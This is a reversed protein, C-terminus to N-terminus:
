GEQIIIKFTLVKPVKIGELIPPVIDEKPPCWLATNSNDSEVEGKFARIFYTHCEGDDPVSLTIESAESPINDLTLINEEGTTEYIRFGDVEDTYTWSASAGYGITPLLLFLISITAILKNM